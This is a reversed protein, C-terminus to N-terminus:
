GVLTEYHKYLKTTVEEINDLNVFGQLANLSRSVAHMIAQRKITNQEEPSKTYSKTTPTYASKGVPKDEGLRSEPQSAASPLSGNGGKSIFTLVDKGNVKESRISIPDNENYGSIFKQVNEGIVYWKASKSDEGILVMKGATGKKILKM